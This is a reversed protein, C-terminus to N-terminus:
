RGWLDFYLGGENNTAVADEVGWAILKDTGLQLETIHGVWHSRAIDETTGLTPEMSGDPGSTLDAFDVQTKFGLVGLWRDALNKDDSWVGSTAVVKIESYQPFYMMGSAGVYSGPNTNWTSLATTAGWYYGGIKVRQLEVEEREERSMFFEYKGIRKLWYKRKDLRRMTYTYNKSEEM